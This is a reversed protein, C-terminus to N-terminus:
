FSYKNMEKKIHCWSTKSSGKVMPNLSRTRVVEALRRPQCQRHRSIALSAEEQAMCAAGTDRCSHVNEGHKADTDQCRRPLWYDSVSISRPPLSSATGM